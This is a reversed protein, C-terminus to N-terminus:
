ILRDAPGSGPGAAFASRCLVHVLNYQCVLVVLDNDRDDSARFIYSQSSCNVLWALCGQDPGHIVKIQSRCEEDGYRSFGLQWVCRKAHATSNSLSIDVLYNNSNPAYARDTPYAATLSAHFFRRVIIIVLKLIIIIIM